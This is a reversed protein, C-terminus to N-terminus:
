HLGMNTQLVRPPDNEREEKQLRIEYECLTLVRDLGADRLKKAVRDIAVVTVNPLERIADRLARVRAKTFFKNPLSSIDCYSPMPNFPTMDVARSLCRMQHYKFRTVWAELIFAKDTFQINGLALQGLDPRDALLERVDAETGASYLFPRYSFKVEKRQEATLHPFVAHLEAATRCMETLKSVKQPDILGVWKSLDRVERHNRYVRFAAGRFRLEGAGYNPSQLMEKAITYAQDPTPDSLHTYFSFKMESTLPSRWSPAHKIFWNQYKKSKLMETEEPTLPPLMDGSHSPREELGDYLSARQIPRLKKALTAFEKPHCSSFKKWDQLAPVEIKRLDTFILSKKRM